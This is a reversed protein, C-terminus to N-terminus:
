CKRIAFGVNWFWGAKIWDAQVICVVVFAIRSGVAWLFFCNLVYNWWCKCLGWVTGNQNLQFVSVFSVLIKILKADPLCVSTVWSCMSPQWLLKSRVRTQRKALCECRRVVELFTNHLDSKNLKLNVKIIWEWVCTSDTFSTMSIIIRRFTM